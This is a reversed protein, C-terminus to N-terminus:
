AVSFRRSETPKTYQAYLDAHTSKFATTDFRNTVVLKYRVKYTDVALEDVERANMEAKISDQISSIEAQLEDALAQLEKLERVKSVMEVISM